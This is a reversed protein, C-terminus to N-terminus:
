KKKTRAHWINGIPILLVLFIIGSLSVMAGNKLSKPQYYFGIKHRGAPVVIARFSYDARYIKTEAQDIEASWGPYYNDSIFLLKAAPADVVLEIKSPNYEFDTIQGEGSGLLVDEKLPEEIVIERKSDFGPSYLIDIIEQGGKIIRYKDTLFVRPIALKNEYIQWRGGQWVLKYTEPPFIQYDPLWDSGLTDNKQLVYKVGLLNLLRQRYFNSRLDTGGYGKVLDVDARPIPNKLQGDDSTSILEGYRKIFLPDNGEPSFNKMLTSFDTDVYGTGYGWFRYIGANKDLYDMVETKPYIYDRPAFPTIKQFYYLLDFVVIALLFWFVLKKRWLLLCVFGGLAFLMPLIINRRSINLYSVWWSNMFLRPAFFTFALAVIYFGLFVFFFPLLSESSHKKASDYGYGALVSISFCFLYLMRTPVTTSIIPIGLRHFFVAFPTNLCLLMTLVSFIVFFSAIPERRRKFIGYIAFFLPLVGVYIVREIYTGSLWYNRSAPNGFFDPAFLGVLCKIPLLLQPIKESSYSERASSFFIEWTPFIQISCILFAAIGSAFVFFLKKLRQTNNDSFLRFFFYAYVMFFVYITTQIHGALVSFVLSLSLLIAWKSQFDKIIKEVLLLSLPLWVIAHGINGYEVWVALYLCYSFAVSSIISGEKSVKIERLFLYMFLSLLLPQIAIFLGWAFNFNFVFFLFNFPYFIASQFNALHPNGSFNYPNWLPLSGKKLEDISFHRWPFMERVVDIGQAKHPVGGPGYGNYSYGNWPAYHGVLIDGPFPIKGSLFFQSFFIFAVLLFVFFACIQKSFRM